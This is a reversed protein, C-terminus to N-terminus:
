TTLLHSAWYDRTTSQSSSSSPAGDMFQQTFCELSMARVDVGLEACLHRRKHPNNFVGDGETSCADILLCRVFEREQTVRDELVEAEVRLVNVREMARPLWGEMYAQLSPVDDHAEFKPDWPCENSLLATASSLCRYPHKATPAHHQSNNCVFDVGSVGHPPGLYSGDDGKPCTSRDYAPFCGSPWVEGWGKTTGHYIYERLLRVVDARALPVCLAVRPLYPSAPTAVLAAYQARVQPATLKFRAMALAIREEAGELTHMYQQVMNLGTDIDRLLFRDELWKIDGKVREVDLPVVEYNGLQDREGGGDLVMAVIVQNSLGGARADAVDVYSSCLPIALRKAGEKAAIASRYGALTPEFVLVDGTTAAAHPVKYRRPALQYIM